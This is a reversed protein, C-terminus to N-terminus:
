RSTQAPPARSRTSAPAEAPVNPSAPLLLTRGEVLMRQVSVVPPPPAAGGLVLNLPHLHGETGHPHTHGFDPAAALAPTALAATCFFGLLLTIFGARLAAELRGPM